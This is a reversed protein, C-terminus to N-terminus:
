NKPSYGIFSAPITLYVRDGVRGKKVAYTDTEGKYSIVTYGNKRTGAPHPIHTEAWPAPVM